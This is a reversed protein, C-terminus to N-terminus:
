IAINTNASKREVTLYKDLEISTNEFVICLVNHKFIYANLKIIDKCNKM